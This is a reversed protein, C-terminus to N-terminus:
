RRAGCASRTASAAEGLNLAAQVLDAIHTKGAGPQGARGRGAAPGGRVAPLPILRHPVESSEQESHVM